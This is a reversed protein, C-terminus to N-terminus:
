ELPTTSFGLLTGGIPHGVWYAQGVKMTKDTGGPSYVWGSQNVVAQSIVISYGPLLGSEAVSVMANVAKMDEMNALGVLNWGAEIGMSPPSSVDEYPVITLAGSKGTNMKIFFGELPDMTDGDAVNAWVQKDADFALAMGIDYGGAATGQTLGAKVKLDAWTDFGSKLLVPTSFSNWGEQLALKKDASIWYGYGFVDKVSFDPNSVLVATIVFCSVIFVGIASKWSKKSIKIKEM